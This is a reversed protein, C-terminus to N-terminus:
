YNQVEWSTLLSPLPWTLLGGVQVPLIEKNPDFDFAPDFTGLYVTPM